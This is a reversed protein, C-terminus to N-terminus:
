TFSGNRFLDGVPMQGLNIEGKEVKDVNLLINCVNRAM